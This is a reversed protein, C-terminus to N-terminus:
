PNHGVLLARLPREPYLDCKVGLRFAEPSVSAYRERWFGGSSAIFPEDTDAMARGPPVGEAHAASDPGSGADDTGDSALASPLSFRRRQVTSTASSLPAPSRKLVANRPTHAFTGLFDLAASMDAVGACGPHAFAALLPVLKIGLIPV